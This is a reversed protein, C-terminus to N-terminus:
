EEIVVFLILKKNVYTGRNRKFRITQILAVNTNCIEREVREV